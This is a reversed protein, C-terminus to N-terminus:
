DDQKDEERALEDLIKRSSEYNNSLEQSFLWGAFDCLKSAPIQANEILCYFHKYDKNKVLENNKKIAESVEFNVYDRILEFARAKEILSAFDSASIGQLEGTTIRM